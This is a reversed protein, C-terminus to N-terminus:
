VGELGYQKVIEIPVGLWVNPKNGVYGLDKIGMETTFFGTAVLGRIHNFFSVGQSVEPKSKEPWAIEEVLSIRETDTVSAFSKNFHKLSRLNLWRLGGRIPLQHEPMDKVIFEIFAPVKADSANGSHADRPIIIDGLLTICQLEDPSFFTKANLQRDREVEFPERGPVAVAADASVAPTDHVDGKPACAELLLGASLSGLTLAKLSERRNM